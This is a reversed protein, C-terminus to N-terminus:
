LVRMENWNWKIGNSGRYAQHPSSKSITRWPLTTSKEHIERAERDDQVFFGNCEEWMWWRYFLNRIKLKSNRFATFM